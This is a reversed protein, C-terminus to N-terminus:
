CVCGRCSPCVFWAVLLWFLSLSICWALCFPILLISCLYIALFEWTKKLVTSKLNCAM